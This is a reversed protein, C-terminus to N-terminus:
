HTRRRTEDLRHRQPLLVVKGLTAGAEMLRHAQVAEELPLLMPRPPRLRGQAMLEIVRQMAARRTARDNDLTHISYMRVGLSKGLRDRLAGFIDAQPMLGGLISFSLLTGLPALLDLNAVFTPGAHAYVVDVGEGSTLDLVSRRLDDNRLLAHRIGAGLVFTRKEQTSVVGICEIGEAQALQLLALGVGGAAGYVLIRRPTSVGAHHLLAQALQYNPLSVADWLDISARLRFLAQAPVCAAEAYCGGRVPLERSSVLVRDGRSWGEVGPGLAEVMGALENGPIAPLPPMWKYVGKRVLLDASSVGAAEARVLVEGHAPHPLPRRVLAMVEPGGPGAMEVVRMSGVM